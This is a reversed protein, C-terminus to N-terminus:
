LSSVYMVSNKNSIGLQNESLPTVSKTFFLTHLSTSKWLSLYRYMVLMMAQHDSSRVVLWSTGPEIGPEANPIKGQLPLFGYCGHGPYCTSNLNLPGGPVGRAYIDDRVDDPCRLQARHVGWGWFDTVSSGCGAPPGRYPCQPPPPVNLRTRQFRV